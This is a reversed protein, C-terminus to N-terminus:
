FLLRFEINTVYLLKLLALSKIITIKGNLTLHLKSWRDLVSKFEALKKSLNSTTIEIIDNYYYIGLSKIGGESWQLKFPKHYTYSITIKGIQLIESKEYNIKLGSALYFLSMINLATRLSIIDM